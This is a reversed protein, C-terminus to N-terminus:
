APIASSACPEGFQLVLAQQAENVTFLSASALVGAALIGIGAVLLTRNM